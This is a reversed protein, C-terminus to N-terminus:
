RKIRVLPFRLSNISDWFIGALIKKNLCIFAVTNKLLPSALFSPTGDLNVSFNIKGYFNKM